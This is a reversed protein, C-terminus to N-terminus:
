LLVLLTCAIRRWLSRAEPAFAFLSCSVCPQISARSVLLGPRRQLGMGLDVKAIALVEGIKREVFHFAETRQSTGELAYDM